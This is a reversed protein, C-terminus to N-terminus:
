SPFADDYNDVNLTFFFFFIISLFKFPFVVARKNGEEKVHKSTM